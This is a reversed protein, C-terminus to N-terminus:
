KRHIYIMNIEAGLFLIYMCAYLWLMLLVVATLSGYMYSFNGFNDIYISFFYSFLMWGFTSFIAGPILNKFSTDRSPFFKYLCIFFLTLITVALLTRFSILYGTAQAIVPYRRSLAIQIRNGFVLLGLSAVFAILFIITYLTAFLRLVIYGRNEPTEFVRNLGREVGLIGKSASWLATLATISIITGSSKTYLDEVISEILPAIAEPLIRNLQSLLDQDTLPTLQLLTLLLMFAPFVALIIFFSASAAYIAMNHQKFNQYVLRIDDCANKM